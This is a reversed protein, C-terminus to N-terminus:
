GRLLTKNEIEWGRFPYEATQHSVFIIGCGTQSQVQFFNLWFSLNEHSIFDLIEDILFLRTEQFYYISLLSLVKQFSTMRDFNKSWLERTGPLLEHLEGKKREIESSSIKFVAQILAIEQELNENLLFFDINQSPIFAVLPFFFKPPNEIISHNNLLIDGKLIKGRSFHPIMGAILKLLTTKGSGNEGRLLIIEGAELQCNINQFLVKNQWGFTLNEITLLM